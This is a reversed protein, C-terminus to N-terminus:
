EGNHRRLYAIWNELIDIREKAKGIGHNCNPCLLDRLKGTKHEHDQCLTKGQTGYLPLKVGCTMCAGGQKAYKRDLEEPTIKHLRARSWKRHKERYEIDNQRRERSRERKRKNDYERYEIDNQRRERSRKNEREKYKPDNKRKERKWNRHYKKRKAIKRQRLEELHEGLAPLHGNNDM